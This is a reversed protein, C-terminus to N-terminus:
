RSRSPAELSDLIAEIVEVAQQFRRPPIGRALDEALEQLPEELQRALEEGEKTVRLIVNRRDTRSRHRTILRKEYLRQSTRSILSQELTVRSGIDVPNMPGQEVLTVLVRYESPAIGYSVLVAAWRREVLVGADALQLPLTLNVNESM